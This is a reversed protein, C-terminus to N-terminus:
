YTGTTYRIDRASVLAFKRMSYFGTIDALRGSDM